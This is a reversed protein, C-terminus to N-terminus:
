LGEVDVQLTVAAPTGSVSRVAVALAAGAPVATNQLTPGAMWTTGTSLSLDTTLLDLGDVTANITAGTGGQRYGRVATVTCAKPARWITYSVAGTPATVVLGESATASPLQTLPVRGTGDLQAWGGPAGGQAIHDALVAGLDTAAMLYRRGYGFDVYCTTVGDPGYFAVAGDGDATVTDHPAGYLDTLDTVQSGGTPADWVTGVSGPRLLLQMGVREMAFDSPSGGFKHRM